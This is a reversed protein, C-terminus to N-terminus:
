GRKKGPGTGPPAPSPPKPSSAHAQPPPPPQPKREDLQAILRRAETLQVMCLNKNPGDPHSGALTEACAALANLAQTVTSEGQGKGARPAPAQKPTLRTEPRPEPNVPPKSAV